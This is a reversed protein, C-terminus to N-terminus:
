ATMKPADGGVGEGMFSAEAATAYWSRPGRLLCLHTWSRRPRLARQLSVCLVTLELMSLGATAQPTKAGSTASSSRRWRIM